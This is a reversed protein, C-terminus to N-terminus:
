KVREMDNWLKCSTTCIVKLLCKKCPCIKVNAYACCDNGFISKSLCGICDKSTVVDVM